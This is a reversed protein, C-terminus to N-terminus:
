LLSAKWSVRQMGDVNVAGALSLTELDPTTYLISGLAVLTPRQIEPINILSLNTLNEYYPSDWTLACFYFEIHRLYPHRSRSVKKQSCSNQFMDSPIWCGPEETLFTCDFTMSELRPVIGPMNCMMQIEGALLHLQSHSGAVHLARLRPFCSRLVPLMRKYIFCEDIDVRLTLPATKSRKLMLKTWKSKSFIISSWLEVCSLAITRWQRCVHSFGIWGMDYTLSDLEDPVCLSFIVMMLELPLSSIPM